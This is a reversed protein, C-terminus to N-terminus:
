LAFSAFAQEFLDTHKDAEAATAGDALWNALEDHEGDDDSLNTLALLL